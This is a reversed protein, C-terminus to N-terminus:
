IQWSKASGPHCSPLQWPFVDSVRPLPNGFINGSNQVSISKCNVALFCHWKCSCNQRQFVDYNKWWNFFEIGPYDTQKSRRDKKWFIIKLCCRLSSTESPWRGQISSINIPWLTIGYSGNRQHVLPTQKLTSPVTLPLLCMFHPFVVFVFSSHYHVLWPSHSNPLPLFLSFLLFCLLM